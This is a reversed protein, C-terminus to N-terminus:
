LLQHKKNQDRPEVDVLLYLYYPIITSSIPIDTDQLFDIFFAYFIVDLVSIFMNPRVYQLAYM